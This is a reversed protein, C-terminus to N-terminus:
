SGCNFAVYLINRERGTKEKEQQMLFQFSSPRKGTRNTEVGFAVIKTPASLYHWSERLELNLAM